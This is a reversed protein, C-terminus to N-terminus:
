NIIYGVNGTNNLRHMTNQHWSVWMEAYNGLTKQLVCVRREGHRAKEGRRGGEVDREEGEQLESGTPGKPGTAIIGLFLVYLKSSLM